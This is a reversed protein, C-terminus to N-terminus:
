ASPREAVSKRALVACGAAQTCGTGLLKSTFKMIRSNGYGDTVYISGDPGFNIDTPQDVHDTGLGKKDLQGLVQLLKGESNFKFIM